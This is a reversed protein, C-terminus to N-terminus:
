VKRNRGESLIRTQADPKPAANGGDVKHNSSKKLGNRGVFGGFSIWEFLVALPNVRMGHNPSPPEPKSHTNERGMQEPIM